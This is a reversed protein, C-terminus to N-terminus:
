VRRIDGTFVNIKKDILQGSLIKAEAISLLFLRHREFQEMASNQFADPDVDQLAEYSFHCIVIEDNVKARFLVGGDEAAIAPGIFDINIM